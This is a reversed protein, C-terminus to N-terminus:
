DTLVALIFPLVLTIDTRQFIRHKRSEVRGTLHRFANRFCQYIVFHFGAEQKFRGGTLPREHIRVPLKVRLRIHRSKFLIQQRTFDQCLEIGFALHARFPELLHLLIEVTVKIHSEGINRESVNGYEIGIEAVALRRFSARCQLRYM